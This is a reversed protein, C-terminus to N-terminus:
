KTASVIATHQQRPPGTVAIKYRGNGTNSEHNHAPSPKNLPVTGTNAKTPGTIAIQVAVGVVTAATTLPGTM